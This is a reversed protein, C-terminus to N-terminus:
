MCGVDSRPWLEVRDSGVVFVAREDPVFWLELDGNRYGSATADDPLAADGDYPQDLTGAPMIGLPDGIYQRSQAGEAIFLFRVEQWGCHAPGAQERLIAGAENAWVRDDNAFVADPGFESEECARLEILSYVGEGVETREASFVAAVKIRDASRYVFVTRDGVTAYPAWNNVPVVFVPDELWSALAAAPTDGVTAVGFPGLGGMASPPGDCDLLDLAAPVASPSSVEEGSGAPGGASCAALLTAVGFWAALRM